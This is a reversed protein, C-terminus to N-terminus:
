IGMVECILGFEEDTLVEQDYGINDNYTDVYKCGKLLHVDVSKKIIIELAELENKIYYFCGVRPDLKNEKLLERLYELEELGKSM